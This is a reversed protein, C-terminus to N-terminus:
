IPAAQIITEAIKTLVPAIQSRLDQKQALRQQQIAPLTTVDFKIAAWYDELARPLYVDLPPFQAIINAKNSVAIEMPSAPAPAALVPHGDADPTIIQGTAEGALMEARRDTTIQIADEPIGPNDSNYFGGTSPSYFCIQM